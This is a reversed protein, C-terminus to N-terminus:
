EGLSYDLVCTRAMNENRCVVGSSMVRKDGDQVSENVQTDRQGRLFGTLEERFKCRLGHDQENSRRIVRLLGKQVDEVVGLSVPRPQCGSVDQELVPCPTKGSAEQAPKCLMRSNRNKISTGTTTHATSATFAAEGQPLGFRAPRRDAQVM